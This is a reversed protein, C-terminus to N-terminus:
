QPAGGPGPIPTTGLPISPFASAGAAAASIRNPRWGNTYRMYATVAAPDALQLSNEDRLRSCAQLGVGRVIQGNSVDTQSWGNCAAVLGPLEQQFAAQRQQATSACGALTLAIGLAAIRLM